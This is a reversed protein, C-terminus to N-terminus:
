SKLTRIDDECWSAGEAHYRSPFGEKAHQLARKRCAALAEELAKNRAEALQARLDATSAIWGTEERKWFTVAKYLKAALQRAEDHEAWADTLAARIHNKHEALTDYAVHVLYTEKELQECRPSLIDREKHYTDREARLEAAVTDMRALERELEEYRALSEDREARMRTCNKAMSTKSEVMEAVRERLHERAENRQVRERWWNSEARETELEECRSRLSTIYKSRQESNCMHYKFGGTDLGCEQCRTYQPRDKLIELCGIRALQTLEWDIKDKLKGM